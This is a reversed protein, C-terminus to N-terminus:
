GTLRSTFTAVKSARIKERREGGEPIEKTKENTERYAQMQSQDSSFSARKQVGAVFQKWLAVQQYPKWGNAWITEPLELRNLDVM